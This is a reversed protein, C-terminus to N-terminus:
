PTLFDLLLENLRDAAQLPIWHGVGEIREYRWPASVFEESNTMQAETLAFDHSSWIGMTPVAISPLELPEAIWSEPPVNARYWNLAATLRGPRSLDTVIQEVDAGSRVWQRLFAWDDRSLWEEAVGEFQFMFMYWSRAYQEPNRARFANPHGVSLATLSATREPVLSAFAWAVAAGWDHGVVHAREVGLHDLIVKLDELAHLIFYDEVRPPADSEGFGRLDPTVVRYGGRTIAPVQHRWLKGSDPFGHLLLVVPGDGEVLVNHTLGNGSIKM